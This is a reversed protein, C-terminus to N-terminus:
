ASGQHLSIYKYIACTTVHFYNAVEAFSVNNKLLQIAHHRIYPQKVHFPTTTSSIKM